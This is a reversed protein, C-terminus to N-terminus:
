DLAQPTFPAAADVTGLRVDLDWEGGACAAGVLHSSAAINAGDTAQSLRRLFAQGAADQAVNCGWLLIDGDPRLAEGIRALQPLYSAIATECLRTGGIWIVGNAGHAVIDIAAADRIGRRELHD